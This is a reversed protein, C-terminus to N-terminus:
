SSTGMVFSWQGIQANRIMKNLTNASDDVDAFLGADRFTQAVTNAYETYKSAVPIVIVQRPNLWFPRSMHNASAGM